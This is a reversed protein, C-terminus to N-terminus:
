RRDAIAFDEGQPTVQWQNAVGIRNTPRTFARRLYGRGWFGLTLAVTGIGVSIPYRINPATMVFPLLGVALAPPMHVKFARLIAISCLVTLMVGVVSSRCLHCAVVGVSATLVCALPFLAPRAMWGPIEPHGFLEYAMVILPPFLIFRLGTLQAPV